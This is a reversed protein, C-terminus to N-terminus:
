NAWLNPYKTAYAENLMTGANKSPCVHVSSRIVPDGTESDEILIGKRLVRLLLGGRTGDDYRVKKLNNSQKKKKKKSKVLYYLPHHRPLVQQPLAQEAPLMAAVTDAGKDGDGGHSM